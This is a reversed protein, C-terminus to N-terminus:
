IETGLLAQLVNSFDAKMLLFMNVLLVDSFVLQLQMMLFHTHTYSRFHSFSGKSRVYRCRYVWISEYPQQQMKHLSNHAMYVFSSKVCYSM